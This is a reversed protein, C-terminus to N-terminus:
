PSQVSSVDRRSHATDSQPSERPLAPAVPLVLMPGHGIIRTFGEGGEDGGSQGACAGVQFSQDADRADPGIRGAGVVGAAAGLGDGLQGPARARGVDRDDRDIASRGGDDRVPRGRFACGGDQEVGVVVDLGGAAVLVPRARREFRGLAVAAQVPTAGGVVLGAHHSVECHQAGVLATRRDPHREGV